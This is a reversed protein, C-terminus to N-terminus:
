GATFIIPPVESPGPPGSNPRLVEVVVQTVWLEPETNTMLVEAVVQTTLLETSSM